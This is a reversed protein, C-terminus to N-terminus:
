ESRLSSDTGEVIKREAETLGYLEYVLNDIEKDTKEIEKKIEDRESLPDDRVHALKKNLELMKEVLSVLSDHMKKEKPNSSDVTHIPLKEIYRRAYSYFGGRFPSSIKRLYFDLASSNLLGLTYLYSEQTANKLIIGYGGANGGGMFYFSGEQDFTFRSKKALVGTLIKPFDHLGLSKPYVYAYWNDHHMKGEERNELTKKNQLLYDWCMPYKSSFDHSPILAVKDGEKKYPFLLVQKPSPYGYHDIDKGM